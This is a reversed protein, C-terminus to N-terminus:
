VHARGIQLVFAVAGLLVFLPTRLDGTLPSGMPQAAFSEDPSMVAPYHKGEPNVRPEEVPM